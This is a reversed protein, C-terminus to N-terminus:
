PTVKLIYARSPDLYKKAVAQLDAPTLKKMEELREKAYDAPRGYLVHGAAVDARVARRQRSRYYGAELMARARDVTEAPLPEKQLRLAINEFEKGAEELNEPSAVISFGLFGAQEGSWFIPSVSYGLSRKERLEQFLLGGFGDLSSALLRLAASDKHSIPVAPFLMLYLAQERGPLRLELRKEDTWVPPASVARDARPAPLSRAFALAEERRFDGAISLVWPQAAQKAWFDRVDDLTLGALSEPTGDPRHGYASGPFLFPRLNRGLLGSINEEQSVISATQDRRVRDLDEQRFGPRTLMERMLDFVEGAYRAPADASVRFDLFASAASIGAARDALFANVEELSRDETGSTLMGATVAALGERSRGDKAEGPDPLLMTGGSFLLSASVYPLTRDPMLILTRGKGLDVIELSDPSSGDPGASGPTTPADAAGPWAATVGAKLKGESLGSGEPVLATLTMAGPRLWEDIVGQVQERSVDRISQLYASGDPDSPQFFFMDGAMDAIDAITEQGRLFNDELNLKARHFEEDTFDSQNLRSLIGALDAVFTETRDPDLQAMVIFLGAREFTTASAMVADAVPKDLKLRRTLLATDDGALLRALVDAAPLRAAGIGPLPFAVSVYARNWPGEQVQVRLGRALDAPRVSGGPEFTNRNPYSGFLRRAEALVDAAKVDGTVVLLMDRPDYRREIYARISEPTAARLTAETGIVPREYPTGELAAGLMAHFMRTWPNDGRQKMEALVVEREADLDAQRLLPDFALDRVAEMATKWQASPLDTLYITADYSTSANLVGGANEVMRDVGEARTRSGKFVLHELLHSIGAEDPREWASGARVYLRVSALPFRGDERVLVSLGNPLRFIRPESAAGAPGATLPFVASLFVLVCFFLAPTMRASRRPFTPM